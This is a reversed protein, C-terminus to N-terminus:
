QVPASVMLGTEGESLGAPQVRVGPCDPTLRRFFIAAAEGDARREPRADIGQTVAGIMLGQVDVAHPLVLASASRPQGPSALRGLTPRAVPREASRNRPALALQFALAACPRRTPQRGCQKSGTGIEDRCRPSSRRPTIM